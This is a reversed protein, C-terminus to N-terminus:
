IDPCVICVMGAILKREERACKTARVVQERKDWGALGEVYKHQNQACPPARRKM